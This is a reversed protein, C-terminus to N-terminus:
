EIGKTTRLELIPSIGYALLGAVTAAIIGTTGINMSTNTHKYIPLTTIRLFHFLIWVLIFISGMVFCPPIHLFLVSFYHYLDTSSVIGTFSLTNLSPITTYVTPLSWLWVLDTHLPLSPVLLQLLFFYLYIIGLPIFYFINFGLFNALALNWPTSEPQAMRLEQAMMLSVFFDPYYSLTKIVQVADTETVGHSMYLEIM